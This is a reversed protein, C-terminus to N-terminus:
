WKLLLKGLALGLLAVALMPLYHWQLLHPMYDTAEKLRLALAGMSFSALVATAGAWAAHTSALKRIEWFLWAGPLLAYVSICSLCELGHGTPVIDTPSTLWAAILTGVFALTLALPAWVLTRQQYRDPFSLMAAACACSLVLGILLLIEAAFLPHTFAVMVDPRVGTYAVLAVAYFAFGGMWRVCLAALRVPKVATTENALSAILQDTKDNM